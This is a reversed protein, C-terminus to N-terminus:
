RPSITFIVKQIQNSFDRNLTVIQENKEEETVGLIKYYDKRDAM